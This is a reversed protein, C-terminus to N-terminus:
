YAKLTNSMAIKHERLIIERHITYVCVHVIHAHMVLRVRNHSIKTRLYSFWLSFTSPVSNTRLPKKLKSSLQSAFHKSKETSERLSKLESM